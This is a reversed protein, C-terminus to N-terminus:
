SMYILNSYQWLEGRNALGVFNFNGPYIYFSLTPRRADIHAKMYSGNEFIAMININISPLPLPLAIGNCAKVLGSPELPNLSGSKLVISV